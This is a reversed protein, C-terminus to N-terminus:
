TDSSSHSPEFDSSTSSSKSKKQKKLTSHTSHSPRSTTASTADGNDVDADVTVRDTVEILKIIGDSTKNLPRPGAAEVAGHASSSSSSSNSNNSSRRTSAREIPTIKAYLGARVGFGQVYLWRSLETPELSFLTPTLNPSHLSWM